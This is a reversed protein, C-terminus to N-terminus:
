IKQVLFAGAKKASAQIDWQPHHGRDSINAKDKYRGSAGGKKWIFFLLFQIDSSERM